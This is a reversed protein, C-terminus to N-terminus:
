IRLSVPNLWNSCSVRRTTPDITPAPQRRGTLMASSYMLRGGLGQYWGMRYVQLTYSPATTSIYLKVQKGVNVSIPASFGEIAHEGGLPHDPRWAATGPCLNEAATPNASQAAGQCHLPPNDPYLKYLTLAMGGLSLFLVLAVLILRRLVRARSTEALFWKALNPM